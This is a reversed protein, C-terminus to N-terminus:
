LRRRIAVCADEPEIRRLETRDRALFESIRSCQGQEIRGLAEVSDLNGLYGVVVESPTAKVLASTAREVHEIDLGVVDCRDLTPQGRAYCLEGRIAAILR